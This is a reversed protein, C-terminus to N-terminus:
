EYYSLVLFFGMDMTQHILLCFGALFLSYIQAIIRVWSLLVARSSLYPCVTPNWNSSTLFFLNIHIKINKYISVSIGWYNGSALVLFMFEDYILM